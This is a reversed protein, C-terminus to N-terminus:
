KDFNVIKWFAPKPEHYENFVFPWNRRGKVPFDNLWTYDDAAGWFTVSSIVDRYERFLSFLQEYRENQLDIMSATPHLLDTRKDEWDFVSVDIETIQLQLGLSAYKEVAARIEDLHPRALNWHAQLGIGHIPVGKELLSKVLKYIKERKEPFSENYDNYFLLANPDAQHAFEFAKEIFETGLIQQWKSSRLLEQGEDAIAENVVDWSRIRGKYRQMVTTIHSEMRNLLLERSAPNGSGDTFVWEPTQNHWVLTHGRVQMDNSEAFQILRDATDFTFCNEKPQLNEFKMENEATISNFHAILLDHQLHVTKPNVAAGIKFYDKYVSHLPPVTKKSLVANM